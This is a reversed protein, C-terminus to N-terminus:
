YINLYLACCFLIVTAGKYFNSCTINCFRCIWCLVFATVMAPCVAMNEREVSNVSGMLM